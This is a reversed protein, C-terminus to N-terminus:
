SSAAPIAPPSGSSSQTSGSSQPPHNPAQGPPRPQQSQAQTAPVGDRPPPATSVSSSSSVPLPHSLSSSSSSHHHASTPAAHPAGHRDRNSLPPSSERKTSSPLMSDDSAQSSWSLVLMCICYLCNLIIGDPQPANNLCSVAEVSPTVSRSHHQSMWKPTLSYRVASRLAVGGQRQLEGDALIDQSAVYVYKVVARDSGDYL